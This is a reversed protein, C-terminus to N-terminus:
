EKGIMGSLEGYSYTTNSLSIGWADITVTLTTVIGVYPTRMRNYTIYLSLDVVMGTMIDIAAHGVMGVEICTDIGENTGSHLTVM